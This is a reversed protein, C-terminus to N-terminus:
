RQLCNVYAGGKRLDQIRGQDQCCYNFNGVVLVKMCHVLAFHALPNGIVICVRGGLLPSRLIVYLSCCGMLTCTCTSVKRVYNVLEKSYYNSVSTLDSSKAEEIRLCPLSLASTLKLFTARLKITLQPQQKIKEQM